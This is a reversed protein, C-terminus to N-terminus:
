LLGFTVEILNSQLTISRTALSSFHRSVTKTSLSTRIYTLAVNREKGGQSITTYPKHQHHHTSVVPLQFGEHLSM